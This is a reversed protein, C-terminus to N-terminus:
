VRLYRKVKEGDAKQPRRPLYICTGAEAAVRQAAYLKLDELVFCLERYSIDRLCCKLARDLKILIVALLIHKTSRDKAETWRGYLRM